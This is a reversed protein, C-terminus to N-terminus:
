ESPSLAWLWHNKRPLQCNQTAVLRWGQPAIEPPSENSMVIIHSGKLLQDSCFNLLKQWPMFARSIIFDPKVSSAAFFSKADGMFGDCNPLELHACATQLFLARKQRREIWTYAGHPWFIRLPIGPLGAGAGLDWIKLKDGPCLHHLVLSDLFSALFFSDQILDRLLSVPEQYASLNLKVNWKLLLDVYLALKEAGVGYPLFPISSAAWLHPHAIAHSVAPCQSM